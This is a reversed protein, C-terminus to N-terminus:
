EKGRITLMQMHHHGGEDEDAIICIKHLVCTGVIKVPADEIKDVEM